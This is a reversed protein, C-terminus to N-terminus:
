FSDIGWFLVQSVPHQSTEAMINLKKVLQETENIVESGISIPNLLLFMGTENSELRKTDLRSQILSEFKVDMAKEGMMFCLKSVVQDFIEDFGHLVCFENIQICGVAYSFDIYGIFNYNEDEIVWLNRSEMKVWFKWYFDNDRTFAGNFRKSFEKYVSKLLHCDYNFDAPRMHYALENRGIVTAIKMYATTKIWGLKCYITATGRLMSLVIGKERMQEVAEKLLRYALGKGQHEPRTSVEGIGGVTIEKGWFYAKRGFIRVTSIIQDGEIAVLIGELNRNPDMYFHNMFTGKLLPDERGGSFVYVCHEFWADLEDKRLTLIEVM